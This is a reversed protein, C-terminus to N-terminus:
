LVAISMSVYQEVQTRLSKEFQIDMHQQYEYKWYQNFLFNAM